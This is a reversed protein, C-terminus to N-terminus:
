SVHVANSARDSETFAVDNLQDASIARMSRTLTTTSAYNAKMGAPSAGYTMAKGKSIGYGQAESIADQNAGLFVFQWNYKENQHTIMEKLQSKNYKRSSNEQGDTLVVFIVKGPRQEEPMDSFRQGTENIAAAFSDILSTSWGDAQYSVNNLPPVTKIDQDKYTTTHFSAFQVLTIRCEGPMEKNAELYSNFGQLTEATMPNMSCSKDLLFTIATLNPNM